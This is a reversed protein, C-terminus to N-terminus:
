KIFVCQNASILAALHPALRNALIKTALKAFSHILSIPRYDGPSSADLRKPILMVDSNLLWLKQANGQQLSILALMLDFKIINWCTKYFCGTFGDPGPSKDDPLNAITQQVELESFPSKLASLDIAMRHFDSLNLTFQRQEALSSIM